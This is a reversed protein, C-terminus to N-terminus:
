APQFEALPELAEETHEQFIAIWNSTKPPHYVRREPRALFEEWTMPACREEPIPAPKGCGYARWLANVLRNEARLANESCFLGELLFLEEPEEETTPNDEMCIQQLIESTVM